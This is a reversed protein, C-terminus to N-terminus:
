LQRLISAVGFGSSSDIKLPLDFPVRLDLGLRLADTEAKRRAPDIGMKWTGLGLAPMEAGTRTRVTRM